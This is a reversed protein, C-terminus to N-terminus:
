ERSNHSSKRNGNATIYALQIQNDYLEYFIIDTLEFKKIGNVVITTFYTWIANDNKKYNTFCFAIM